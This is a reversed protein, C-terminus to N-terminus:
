KDTADIFVRENAKILGLKERAIRELYEDSKVNDLEAKLKQGEKKTQEIKAKYENALRNCKSLSIRQNIFVSAVYVCVFLLGGIKLLRKFSFNIKKNSKHTRVSM